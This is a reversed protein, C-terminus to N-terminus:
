HQNQVDNPDDVIQNLTETSLKNYDVNSFSFQEITINNGIEQHPKGRLRNMIAKYAITDGNKLAKEIQKLDMATELTIRDIKFDLYLLFDQVEKLANVEVLQEAIKKLLYKRKRGESKSRKSPQNKKSFRTRQGKKLNENNAM